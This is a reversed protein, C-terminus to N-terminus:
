KSSPQVNTLNYMNNKVSRLSALIQAFPTVILDEMHARESSAGVAGSTVTTQTSEAEKIRCMMLM